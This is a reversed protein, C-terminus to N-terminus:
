ETKQQIQKSDALSILKGGQLYFDCLYAHSHTSELEKQREKCTRIVFIGMQFWYALFLILICSNPQACHSLGTIRSKIHLFLIVCLM